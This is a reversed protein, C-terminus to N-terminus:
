GIFIFNSQFIQFIVTLKFKNPIALRPIFEIIGM